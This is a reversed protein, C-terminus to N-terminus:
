DLWVPSLHSSLTGGKTLQELGSGDVNIKWLRWELPESTGTFVITKKDPSVDLNDRSGVPKKTLQQLKSNKLLVKWVYQLGAEKRGAFVINEDDLWRPSICSRFDTLVDESVIFEKEKVEAILVGKFNAPSLAVRNGSDSFSLGQYIPSNSNKIEIKEWSNNNIDYRFIGKTYNLAYIFEGTPFFKPRFLIDEFSKAEYIIRKTKQELDYLYLSRPNGHEHSGEFVLLNRKRNYEIKGINFMGVDVPEIVGSSVDFIHLGGEHEASFAIRSIKEDAQAQLTFLFLTIFIQLVINRM